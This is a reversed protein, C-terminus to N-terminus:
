FWLKNITSISKELRQQWNGTVLEYKIGKDALEKKHFINLEDRRQKDLRTGDQIHPADADLFLYLDCQNAEEIWNEVLLEKDFLFKSYSRTTNIDTDIFLFKNATKLKKNIEMAQLKAIQKLDVETCENTLEVIERAMEAVFSTQFHSALKETLTSKGTSETGCICVKKVFYPKASEAIYNWNKFINSRIESASINNTTRLPEFLVSNCKLFKSLYDGYIESSFVVDIKGLTSQIKTAWVESVNKSSKSTNPLEQESYKLLTPKIKPNSNFTEQIWKLRTSGAINEINSACVLVVLEDCQKEAFEILGIHGLHLPYFKGLVLGRVM